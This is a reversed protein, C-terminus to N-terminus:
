VEHTCLEAVTVSDHRLSYLVCMCSGIGAFRATTPMCARAQVTGPSGIGALMPLLKVYGNVDSGPLFGASYGLAKHCAASSDAFLFDSPFKTKEAFLQGAEKTGVGVAVIKVGASQM